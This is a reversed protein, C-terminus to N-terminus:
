VTSAHMNLSASCMCSAQNKRNHPHGAPRSCPRPIIPRLSERQTHEHLQRAVCEVAVECRVSDMREEERGRRRARARHRTTRVRDIPNGRRWEVAAGGIRWTWRESSIARLRVCSTTDRDAYSNTPVFNARDTSSSSYLRNGHYIGDLVYVHWIRYAPCVTNLVQQYCTSLTALFKTCNLNLAHKAYSNNHNKKKRLM